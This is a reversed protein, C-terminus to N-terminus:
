EGKHTMRWLANLEKDTKGPFQERYFPLRDAPVGGADNDPAIGTTTTMHAKGRAQNIAAQRAAAQTSSRLRDFCALKYANDLSMHEDMVLRNFEGFEPLNQIDELSHIAPDLTKIREIQENLMQMGRQQEDRQRIMEAQRYAPTAKVAEDLLKPDIGKEQLKKEMAIQKQADLADLYDSVTKIPAGTKPNVQGAFRAAFRANIADIKRNAKAEAHQRAEKWVSNPIQQEQNAPEQEDTGSNESEANEAATTEANEATQNQTETEEPAPAAAEQEVVSSNLEDM